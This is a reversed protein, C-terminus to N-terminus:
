APRGALVVRALGPIALSGDPARYPALRDLAGRRVADEHAPTSGALITALARSLDRTVEWWEEPSPYRWVLPVEEEHLVSLGASGLLAHVRQPDALRFPGPADPAPREALGLELAARGAATAWDNQEAAAWVALALRGGPRLVRAVEHAAAECDPVLMLGFRCLVGDISAAALGTAVADAVRFEVNTIGLEQARLRAGEVMEPAVDSSILRGGPELRPAALLGTDGPGAALELVTEGPRPALLDVLREGVPQTAGWVLARRRV